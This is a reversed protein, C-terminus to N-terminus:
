YQQHQVMFPGPQQQQQAMFSGPQQQQQAMFQSHILTEPGQAYQFITPPPAIEAVVHEVASKGTVLLWVLYTAQLAQIAFGSLRTLEHSLSPAPAPSPRVVLPVLAANVLVDFIDWFSNEYYNWAIAQTNM